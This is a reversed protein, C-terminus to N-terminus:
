LYRRAIAAFVDRNPTARLLLDRLDLIPRHEHNPLIQAVVYEWSEDDGCADLLRDLCTDSSTDNPAPEGLQDLFYPWRLMLEVLRAMEVSHREVALMSPSLLGTRHDLVMYFRWLNVFLRTHRPNRGPLSLIAVRLADRVAPLSELEDVAVASSATTPADPVIVLEIAPLTPLRAAAHPVPPTNPPQPPRTPGAPQLSTPDPDPEVPPDLLLDLYQSLATDPLRPLRVPLDVIKEMLRWGAYKPFGVRAAHEATDPWLASDLHAAIIAPDLAIVFICPRLVHNLFLNIADVTDTVVAPECRDLDDIFVYLPGHGTALNVVAGVDQQFARMHGGEASTLPEGPRKWTHETSAQDPPAAWQRIQKVSGGTVKAIVGLVTLVVLATPGLLAAVSPKNVAAVSISVVTVVVLSLMLASFLVGALTRPIYSSLIRRRMAMADTQRLNLDFWLREQAAVPLRAAVATLIQRAFGSWVQATGEYMWPNFWVSIANDQDPFLPRMEYELPADPHTVRQLQSWAWARTIRTRVRRVRRRDPAPRPVLVHTPRSEVGSQSSPDLRARLQRLLGSKGEGWQGYLGVVAPPRTNPSSLIDHLTEVMPDRTLRGDDTPQETYLVSVPRVHRGVSGGARLPSRVSVPWLRLVGDHGATALAPRRGVMDSWPVQLVAMSRIGATGGRVPNSVLTGDIHWVLIRGDDCGGLVFTTGEVTVAALSRVQGAGYSREFTSVVVGALPDILQVGGDARAVVVLQRDGDNLGVAVSVAPLMLVRSVQGRLSLARLGQGSGIVIIPDVPDVVVIVSNVEGCDTALIDAPENGGLAFRRVTGDAGASVVYNIGAETYGALAWVEGIHGMPLEGRLRGTSPDWDLVRADAGGSILHPQERDGVVTLSRVTSTHRRLVMIDRHGDPDVVNVTQDVGAVALYPGALTEGHAVAWITTETQFLVRVSAETLLATSLRKVKIDGNMDGSAIFVGDATTDCALAWAEGSHRSVELEARDSSGDPRWLSVSGTATATLLLIRNMDSLHGLRRITGDATFASRITLGGSDTAGWVRMRRDSGGSIVMWGDDADQAAIVSWIPGDHAQQVIPPRSPETVDWTALFGDTYACTIRNAYACLKFLRTPDLADPNALRRVADSSPTWVHLGSDLIAAVNESGAAGFVALDRVAGGGLARRLVQTGTVPDYGRVDGDAGGTLLVENVTDAGPLVQLATVVRDAVLIPMVAGTAADILEVGGSRAAALFLQGGARVFSLHHVSGSLRAAADESM